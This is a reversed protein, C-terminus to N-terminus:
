DMQYYVGADLGAAQMAKAMAEAARTRRNGQGMGEMPISVMFIRSRLWEMSYASSGGAQVAALVTTERMRPVRFYPSDMNCTGGDDVEACKKAAEVAAQVGRTIAAADVKTM